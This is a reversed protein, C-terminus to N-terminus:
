KITNSDRLKILRQQPPSPQTCDQPISQLAGLSTRLHGCSLTGLAAKELSM